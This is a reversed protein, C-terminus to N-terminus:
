ESIISEVRFIHKIKRGRTIVTPTFTDNLIHKIPLLIVTPLQLNPYNMMCWVSFRLEPNYGKWLIALTVYDIETNNTFDFFYVHKTNVFDVIGAYKKGDDLQIKNLLKM